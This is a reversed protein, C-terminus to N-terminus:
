RTKTLFDYIRNIIEKDKNYDFKRAFLYESNILEDYDKNRWIYPNGRNWDIYRM